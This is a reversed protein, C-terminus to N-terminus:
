LITCRRQCIFCFRMNKRIRKWCGWLFRRRWWVIRCWWEWIVFSVIGRIRNNGWAGRIIFTRVISVTFHIKAWCLIIALLKAYVNDGTQSTRCIVPTQTDLPSNNQNPPHNSSNPKSSAPHRSSSAKPNTTAQAIPHHSSHLNLPRHHSLGPQHCPIKLPIWCGRLIM